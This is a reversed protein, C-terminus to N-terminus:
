ESENENLSGASAELDAFRKEGDRQRNDTTSEDPDALPEFVSGLRGSIFRSRVCLANDINSKPTTHWQRHRHGCAIRQGASCQGTADWNKPKSIWRVVWNSRSWPSLSGGAPALRGYETGGPVVSPTDVFRAWRPTGTLDEAALPGTFESAQIPLSLRNFGIFRTLGLPGWM